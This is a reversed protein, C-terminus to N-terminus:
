PSGSTSQSSDCRLFKNTRSLPRYVTRKEENARIGSTGQPDCLGTNHESSASRATRPVVSARMDNQRLPMSQVINVM